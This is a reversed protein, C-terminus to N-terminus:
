RIIFRYLVFIPVTGGFALLFSGFNFGTVTGLELYPGIFGGLFVGAIGLLITIIIGASDKGPIILKALFGVILGMIIWSSIEM